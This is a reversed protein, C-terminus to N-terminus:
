DQKQSKIENLCQALGQQWDPLAIGFRRKIRDVSFCSNKPRAAPRGYAETTIPILQPRREAPLLAERAAIELIAEAFGLWTTAGAAALHFVGSSFRSASREGSAQRVIGATADAIHRAWTPAGQQDAVIPISDREGALRLITRVFNNGRAAYVWSTRLIIYDGAVQQVVIEGALKSRGYANIPHPADDEAYPADKGGDFVYDTSYHVLLAGASRAAEALIGVATGNVATALAEQDEAKDVATYGAANVIVDPNISRILAPLLEPRTLDYQARDLAIVEGLPLLSRSLHWGLQGNAGTVLLKM